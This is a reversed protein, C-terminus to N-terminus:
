PQDECPLHIEIHVLADDHSADTLMADMNESQPYDHAQEPRRGRPQASTRNALRAGAKRDKLKKAKQALDAEHHIIDNAKANTRAYASKPEAKARKAFKAQPVTLNTYEEEKNSVKFYMSQHPDWVWIHGANHQPWKVTVKTNAPLMRRLTLLQTSVYIFTNLDIGYHQLVSEGVQSFEIEVDDFNLKLQPPHSQAGENWASLPARRDLGRHPRQHYVNCIWVHIARDLQELTLCADDEAKFGVRKHVKALTTGPLTHILGYNLTRLFREVHPKANPDKSPAFETGIGINLLADIVAEAHFERGNDMVLVSFWGLCPWELNLDAYTGGEALYLKPMLAHRLCEFVAATGHGALSIHFGLICRSKRDIIVTAWPRGIVVGAEDVVLIDLPTHDIEVIDLIHRAQRAGLYAGFRREAEVRGYRALAFDYAWLKEIRRQITRLGPVKIHESKLRTTNLHQIDLLVGLHVDEASGAKRELLVKEIRTDILQEVEVSLRSRGRGGRADYNSILARFDGQAHDLQALWSYITSLHPPRAEKLDQSIKLVLERLRKRGAIHGERKVGTVYAAKRRSDVLAAQSRISSEQADGSNRHCVSRTPESRNKTTLLAGKSYMFMLTTMNESKFEGTVQSELQVTDATARVVKHEVGDLYVAQDKTFTRM